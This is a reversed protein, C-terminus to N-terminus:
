ALGEYTRESRRAVRVIRVLRERDFIAYVIRYDGV